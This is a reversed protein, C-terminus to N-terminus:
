SPRSTTRPGWVRSRRLRRHRWWSPSASIPWSSGSPDAPWCSTPPNVDRHLISRAHVFNLAGGVAALVRRAFHAGLLDGGGERRAEILGHLDGGDMYRPLFCVQREGDYSVEQCAVIHPHRLEKLLEAERLASGRRAQAAAGEAEGAASDCPVVKVAFQVGEPGDALWVEGFAGRGLLRRLECRGALTADQRQGGGAAAAM